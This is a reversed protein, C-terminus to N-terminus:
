KAIIKQVDAFVADIERDRDITNLLGQEKYYALIPEINKINIALRNKVTEPKDVQRQYFQHGGCRDSTDQ